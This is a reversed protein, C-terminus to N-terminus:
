AERARARAIYIREATVHGARKPQPNAIVSHWKSKLFVSDPDKAYPM